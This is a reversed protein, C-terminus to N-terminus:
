FKTDYVVYTDYSNIIFEKPIYLEDFVFLRLVVTFLNMYRISYDKWIQITLCCAKSNTYVSSWRFVQNTTDKIDSALTSNACDFTPPVLIKVALRLGVM